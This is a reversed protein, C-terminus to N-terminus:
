RTLTGEGLRDVPTTRASGRPKRAEALEEGFRQALQLATPRSEPIEGLCADILAALSAPLGPAVTALPPAPEFKHGDLLALVPPREFPRRAGLLEYAIVGLAFVDAPPAVRDRGQALEPAIYSPTGPLFGTRTIGGGSPASAHYPVLPARSPVPRAPQVATPSTTEATPAGTIGEQADGAGGRIADGTRSSSVALRAQGTDIPRTADAVADPATIIDPSRARARVRSSSSELDAFRLMAMAASRGASEASTAGVGRAMPELKEFRETDPNLAIGFDAIKVRTAGSGDNTVLVNAPKLDRHVVGAAHLAALGRGLQALVDLVWARDGLRKAAEKLSTGDVLEMVLFLYGTASVDVDVVAVLNPHHVTAAMQAERALRALAEGHVERAVKLAFRRDDDLRTVEYVAGMGGAGLAREIRYRQQVVDGIRLEPVKGRGTVALALAAYLQGSRDAIQRRLEANLQVIQRGHAELEDVRGRLEDNLADRQSMSKAHERGLILSLCFVVTAIAISGLRAGGAIEGLGLWAVFDPGAFLGLCAWASLLFAASRERTRLYLRFTEAIQIAMVTAMYAVIAPAGIVVRWHADPVVAPASGALVAALWWVRSPRPRGSFARTFELGCTLAIVISFAMISVDARGVLDRGAGIIFAPYAAGLLAETGFWFYMKRRRDSLYIPLWALAMISLGVLSAFAGRDNLWAAFGLLVGGQGAVELRPTLGFRGSLAWRHKVVLELEVRGDDTVAEPLKWVFPGVARYDDAREGARDIRRGDALLFLSAESAPVVLALRQGHLRPDIEVTTHLRFTLDRRPLEFDLKRPLRVARAPAPDGDVSLSWSPLAQGVGDHSCGAASGGSLALGVILAFM